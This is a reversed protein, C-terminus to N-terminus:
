NGKKIVTVQGLYGATGSEILITNTALCIRNVHRRAALNDLANLVFTFQKIYEPGYKTQMVDDHHAVIKAEPNFKLASEKAVEAKSM